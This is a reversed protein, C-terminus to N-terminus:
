IQAPAAITQTTNQKRDLFCFHYSWSVSFALACSGGSGAPLAPPSPCAARAGGPHAWPISPRHPEVPGEAVAPVPCRCHDMCSFVPPVSPPSVPFPFQTPLVANSQSVKVSLDTKSIVFMGMAFLCGCSCWAGRHPRLALGSCPEPQAGREGPLLLSRGVRARLVAGSIDRCWNICCPM